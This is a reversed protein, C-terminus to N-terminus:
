YWREPRLRLIVMRQHGGGEVVARAAVDGRYRRHLALREEATVTDQVTCPGEATVHSYAGEREDFCLAARGSREVNRHKQSGRETYIAFAGNAYLYWVPVAHPRGNGDVTALVATLPRDVFEEREREDM